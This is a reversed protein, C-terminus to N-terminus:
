GQQMPLGTIHVGHQHLLCTKRSSGNTSHQSKNVTNCKTQQVQPVYSTQHRDAKRRPRGNVLVQGSLQGLTKRGALMDMFTSKGAGSPGLLVALQGAALSGSM